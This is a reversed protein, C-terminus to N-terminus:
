FVIVPSKEITFLIFNPQFLYVSNIEKDQWEVQLLCCLLPVHTEDEPPKETQTKKKVQEFFGPNKENRKVIM